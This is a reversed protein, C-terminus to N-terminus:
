RIKAIIGLQLITIDDGAEANFGFGPTLYYCAGAFIGAVLHV